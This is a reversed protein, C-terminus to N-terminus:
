TNKEKLKAEILSAFTQVYLGNENFAAVWYDAVEEDTLGVWEKHLVGNNTGVETCSQPKAYLPEWNRFCENDNRVFCLSRKWGGSGFVNAECMWAVPEEGGRLEDVWNDPTGAWAKTGKEVMEKLNDDKKTTHSGFGFNKERLKYALLQSFQFEDQTEAYIEDVEEQTLDVWSPGSETGVQGWETTANKAVQRNEQRTAPATFRDIAPCGREFCGDDMDPIFEKLADFIKTRLMGSAHFLVAIHMLEEILPKAHDYKM